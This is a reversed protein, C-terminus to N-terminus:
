FHYCHFRYPHNLSGIMVYSPDAMRKNVVIRVALEQELAFAMASHAAACCAMPLPSHWDFTHYICYLRKLARCNCCECSFANPQYHFPAIHLNRSFSRLVRYSLWECAFEYRLFLQENHHLDHKKQKQKMKWREFKQHKGFSHCMIKIKKRFERKLYAVFLKQVTAIQCHM